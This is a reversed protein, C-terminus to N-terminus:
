GATEPHMRNIGDHPRCASGLKHAARDLKLATARTWVAVRTQEASCAPSSYVILHPSISACLWTCALPVQADLFDGYTEIGLETLNSSKLAAWRHGLLEPDAEKIRHCTETEREDEGPGCGRYYMYASRGGILRRLAARTFEEPDFWDAQSGSVVTPVAGFATGYRCAYAHM